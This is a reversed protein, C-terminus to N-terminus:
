RRPSGASGDTPCVRPDSRSCGRRARDHRDRPARHPRAGAARVAPPQREASAVHSHPHHDRRRLGRDHVLAPGCPARGHGARQRGRGRVRRDASRRSRADRTETRDIAGAPEIPSLRRSRLLAVLALGALVALVLAVISAAPDARRDRSPGLEVWGFCAVCARGAHLRRYKGGLPPSESKPGVFTAQTLPRVGRPPPRSLREM